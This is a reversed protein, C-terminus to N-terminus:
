HGSILRAIDANQAALLDLKENVDKAARIQDLKNAVRHLLIAKSAIRVSHKEPSVSSEDDNAVSQSDLFQKFRGM